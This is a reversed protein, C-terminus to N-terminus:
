KKIINRVFQLVEDVHGSVKVKHWAAVTLGNPDILFTSREIGMYKKGYLSKEKWVHFAQCLEGETDALLTFSLDEKQSFKMHSTCTDRSVGVIGCGLTAFRKLAIQFERAETTCGSTMDKPYFYLVHWKGLFHEHTV